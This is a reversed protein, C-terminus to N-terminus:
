LGGVMRMGGQGQLNGVRYAARVMAYTGDPPSDDPDPMSYELHGEFSDGDRIHDLIDALLETLQEQTLPVPKNM